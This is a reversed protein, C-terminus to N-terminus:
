CCVATFDDLLFENSRNTEFRYCDMKGAYEIKFGSTSRTRGSKTELNKKRELISPIEEVGEGCITFRYYTGTVPGNKGNTCTKKVKKKYSRFGLTRAVYIIDDVLQESKLIFEYCSGCNYGDSDVLGALLKLRNERSNIKYEDPIHKNNLLNYDKLFNLFMNGRKGAHHTGTTINYRYEKKSIKSVVLANKEAFNKFYDVVEPEATTIQPQASTGDGLWYGLIYPDIEIKREGFDIGNSFGRFVRKVGKPLKLYDNVEITIDDGYKIYGDRDPVENKLYYKAANLADPNNDDYYKVYFREGTIKLNEFWKSYYANRSKDFCITECTITKLLLNHDASVTYTNGKIPIINYMKINKSHFIKKVIQPVSDESMIKDGIKINKIKKTSGDHMLVLTDAAFGSTPM